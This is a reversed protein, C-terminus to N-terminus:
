HLAPMHLAVIIGADFSPPLAELLTQVARPGGTSAGIVVLEGSHPAATNM